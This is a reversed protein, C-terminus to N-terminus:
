SLGGSKAEGFVSGYTAWDAMGDRWVLNGHGIVGDAVLASLAAESIPGQQAGNLEYFWQMLERKTVSVKIM